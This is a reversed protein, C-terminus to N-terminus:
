NEEWSLVRCMWQDSGTKKKKKVVATIVKKMGYLESIAEIRFFDSSDTIIEPDIVVEEGGPVDKYWAPGTIDHIYQDESTEKRYSYLEEAFNGYDSPLIVKLVPIEATNINIRGEFYYENEERSFPGHATIFESIGQTEDHGFYLDPTIGKVLLLEGEHKISDNSCPYSNELGLYYDSEAGNLGTIADDDGSDLWDKISNIIDTTANLSAEEDLSVIPRLFRDWLEQQKINFAHGGPFKDVLANLQIGALEDLIKISLSGEKFGLDGILEKLVEPDAWDEQISDIESEEKDKVLVAMGANIGSSAMYSLTIRDRERAGSIVVSRVSRNLELTMAVLITIITVTILLAIGDENRYNGGSFFFGRGM